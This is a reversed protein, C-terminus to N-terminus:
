RPARRSRPAPRQESPVARRATVSGRNGPLVVDALGVLARIASSEPAADLPALGQREAEAVSPDDPVIVLGDSGLAEVVHAIDADDTVRNAVLVPRGLRQERVLDAARRGVELSKVTPEAVIVVVDVPRRGMRTLTGIGAELDAVVVGEDLEDVQALMQEPSVGCCPCAPRPRQLANVVAFTVGDPGGTGFHRILAAADDAHETAGDDVSERIAVASETAEEGFGLSLGLNPNTDCDLAVTAIGRRALTRALVAATTTKGSGGKGVVAIRM